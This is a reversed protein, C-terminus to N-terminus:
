VVRTEECPFARHLHIHFSHLDRGNHSQREKEQLPQQHPLTVASLHRSPSPTTKSDHPRPTATTTAGRTNYPLLHLLPKTPAPTISHQYTNTHRHSHLNPLITKDSTSESHHKHYYATPPMWSMHTEHLTPNRPWQYRHISVGEARLHFWRRGDRRM